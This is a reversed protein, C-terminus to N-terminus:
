IETRCKTVGSRINGKLNICKVRAVSIVNVTGIIRWARHIRVFFFGPLYVTRCAQPADRKVEQHHRWPHDAGVAGGLQVEARTDGHQVGVRAEPDDDPVREQR